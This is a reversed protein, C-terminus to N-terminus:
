LNHLVNSPDLQTTLADIDLECLAGDPNTSLVVSVSSQGVPIQKGTLRHILDAFIETSEDHSGVLINEADTLRFQLLADLLATRISHESQTITVNYGHCRTKIGMLGAITNHTSQMFLTPGLCHEGERCMQLLFKESNELMGLTTATIIADPTPVGAERLATLSTTLAAKLLRCMRRAEMPSVFEKVRDTTEHVALTSLSKVYVKPSIHPLLHSTHGPQSLILCSDNGGFGFSNCMVHCLQVDRVGMTPVIGQEMATQWGLNAPLFGNQMALLCIVTEISGSASTTHGTMSKTSSVPPVVDGFVRLIAVSESQDNNPTGTGHANIYGIQECDLQAMNLAQQMARYAGEGNDSSATQHHADCANGYGSLVALPSVGRRTVSEESELVVYAAGEGLNLGRRDRDFPRCQEHDLIMLTNFGNLHFKSLAEAGGAVVRDAVGTKILNAGMIIANAASSCATSITITRGPDLGVIRATLQTTTGCDHSALTALHEDSDQMDLFYRETYDMGGVTTGSILPVTEMDEADLGAEAIAERVAVAGLLATRNVMADDSLGLMQRLEGDTQRVEGVSLDTHETQLHHIPGIGSRGELLSHLVEDKGTGIASIIGSGTIFVTQNTM